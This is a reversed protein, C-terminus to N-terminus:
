QEKKLNTYGEKAEYVINNSTYQKCYVMQKSINPPKVVM